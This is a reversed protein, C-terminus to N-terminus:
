NKENKAVISKIPEFSKRHIPTVGFVDIAELHVKTGYGANQEFGYQPYSVAYDAMLRDRIEKAVISAAAIAYSNADGKIIAQQPINNDLSMADILLYDPAVSMNDIAQQMALKTAQYINVEDIIEPEIMGVGISIAKDKIADYLVSRKKASLQKSDNIGVIKDDLPMVVCAAVVPGALPGRGVEDIGAIYQYGKQQLQQEYVFMRELKELAQQQKQKNRRWTELLRQVSKRTDTLWEQKFQQADQITELQRKIDAVSNQQTM